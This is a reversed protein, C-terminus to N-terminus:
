KLREEKGKLKVIERELDELASAANSKVGEIIEKEKDYAVAKMYEKEAEKIAEKDGKKAKNINEKAKLLSNESHKDLDAVAKKREMVAIAYLSNGNERYDVIRSGKLTQNVSQKIIMLFENKCEKSNDFMKGITGECAIDLTEEEMKVNIQRAIEVRATVEAM